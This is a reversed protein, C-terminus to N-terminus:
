HAKGNTRLQSGLQADHRTLSILLACLYQCFCTRCTTLVQVIKRASVPSSDVLLCVLFCVTRHQLVCQWDLWSAVNGTEALQLPSIRPHSSFAKFVATVQASAAYNYISMHVQFHLLSCGVVAAACMPQMSQLAAPQAKILLCLVQMLWIVTFPDVRM